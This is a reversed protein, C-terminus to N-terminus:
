EESNTIKEIKETLRKINDNLKELEKVASTVDKESKLHANGVSIFKTVPISANKILNTLYIRKADDENKVKDANITDKMRGYLTKYFKKDNQRKEIAKQYSEFSKKNAVVADLFRERDASIRDFEASHKKLDDKGVDEFSIEPIQVNKMITAGVMRKNLYLGRQVCVLLQISTNNVSTLITSYESEHIIAKHNFDKTIIKEYDFIGDDDLFLMDCLKIYFQLHITLEKYVSKIGLIKEVEKTHSVLQVTKSSTSKMLQKHQEKLQDLEEKLEELKTKQEEHTEQNTETRIIEEADNIAEEAKDTADEVDESEQVIDDASKASGGGGGGGSGGGFLGMIFDIIAKFFGAIAGFIAGFFGEADLSNLERLDDIKVSYEEMVLNLHERAVLVEKSTGNDLMDLSTQFGTDVLMMLSTMTDQEECLRDLEELFKRSSERQKFYSANYTM